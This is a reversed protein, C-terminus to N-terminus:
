NFGSEGATEARCRFTINDSTLLVNLNSTLAVQINFVITLDSTSGSSLSEAKLFWSRSQTMPRWTKALPTEPPSSLDSGLAFSGSVRNVSISYLSAAGGTLWNYSDLISNQIGGPDEDSVAVIELIGSNLINLYLEAGSSSGANSSAFSTFSVGPSSSASRFFLTGLSQGIALLIQQIAAM